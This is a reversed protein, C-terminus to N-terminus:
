VPEEVGRNWGVIFVAKTKRAVTRAATEAKVAGEIPLADVLL